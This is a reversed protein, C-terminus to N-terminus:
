NFTINLLEKFTFLIFIIFFLLAQLEMELKPQITKM